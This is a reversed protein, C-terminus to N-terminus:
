ENETEEIHQLFNYKAPIAPDLEFFRAVIQWIVGDTVNLKAPEIIGTRRKYTGGKIDQELETKSRNQAAAIWTMADAQGDELSISGNDIKQAIAQVTPKLTQALKSQDVACVEAEPLQLKEIYLRYAALAQRATSYAYQKQERLWKDFSAYGYVRRSDDTDTVPLYAWLGSDEFAALASGFAIFAETHIKHAREIRQEYERAAATRPDDPKM